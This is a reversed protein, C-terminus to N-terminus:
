VHIRYVFTSWALGGFSFVSSSGTAGFMRSDRPKRRCLLFAVCKEDERDVQIILYTMPM